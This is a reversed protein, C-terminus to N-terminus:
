NKFTVSEGLDYQNLQLKLSQSLKTLEDVKVELETVTNATRYSQTSISLVNQNMEEAVSSQEEAATAIQINMDSVDTVSNVIETFAQETNQIQVVSASVKQMGSDVAKVAQQSGQQLKEIMTEIEVTSDQTRSALTRVEDAVVAFGRGAEGARAAEIAANLALLNTQDSIGSISDTIDRIQQCETALKSISDSISTLSSALGLITERTDVIMAKGSHAANDAKAALDSTRSTNQAIEIVTSSMENMATAVLETEAHQINMSEKTSNSTESLVHTTSLLDHSSEVFRGIVAKLRGQLVKASMVTEGIEDQRKLEIKETLDGTSLRKLIRTLNNVRKIVDTNIVYILLAFLFFLWLNSIIHVLDTSFLQGDHWELFLLSVFAIGIISNVKAALTIKSYLPLKPLPKSPNNNLEKYLAEADKVQKETPCSRISQYGIKKGNEYVPTVYADVWYYDGNKCRNKVMGKWPKDSKITSWLDEFAAKPMDEHRVINHHAGILEEETYGSIDIFDRNCYQIDGNLDTVSVLTASEGFKREKTSM